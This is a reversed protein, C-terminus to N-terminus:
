PFIVKPKSLRWGSRDGLGHRLSKDFQPIILSGNKYWLDIEVDFGQLLAQDIFDPHNEEESKGFLNGRHAILIM